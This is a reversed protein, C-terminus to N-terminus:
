ATRVPNREKDINFFADNEKKVAVTIGHRLLNCSQTVPNDLLGFCQTDSQSELLIGRHFMLIFIGFTAHIRQIKYNIHHCICVIIMIKHFVANRIFIHLFQTQFIKCNLLYLTYNCILIFM